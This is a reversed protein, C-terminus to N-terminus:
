IGSELLSWYVMRDEPDKATFRAVQAKGNEPYDKTVDDGDIDPAEDMDTVKITVDISGSLGSPDTATVTVMYSKKTEYDLKVGSGVSIQGATDSDSSITFSAADTGSLTYTLKDNDVSNPDTATVPEGM